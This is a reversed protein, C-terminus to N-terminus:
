YLECKDIINEDKEEENWEYTGGTWELGPKTLNPPDYIGWWQDKEIPVLNEGLNKTRCQNRIVGSTPFHQKYWSFYWPWSWRYYRFSDTSGAVDSRNRWHRESLHLFQQAHLRCVCQHGRTSPGTRYYHLEEYIFVWQDEIGCQGCNLVYWKHLLTGQFSGNSNSRWTGCNRINSDTHHLHHDHRERDPNGACKTSSCRFGRAGRELQRQITQEDLEIYYIQDKYIKQYEPIQPIM